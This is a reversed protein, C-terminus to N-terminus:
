ASPPPTEVGDAYPHSLFPRLIQAVGSRGGARLKQIINGVHTKATKESVFLQEAIQRNTQGTALLAAVERERTTLQLLPNEPAAHRYRMELMETQSRECEEALQEVAHVLSPDCPPSASLMLGRLSEVAQRIRKLRTGADAQILSSNPDSGAATQARCALRSRRKRREEDERERQLATALSDALCEIAWVSQESYVDPTYSLVSLLGSVRTRKESKEFIPVVIGEASRRATDGFARGRHLLEGQDRRSWYSRRNTVIWETVGGALYPNINPDDYERGDFNYPYVITRASEQCFGIYFSDLPALAEAYRHVTRYLRYHSDGSLALIARDAEQLVQRKDPLIPPPPTRTNM